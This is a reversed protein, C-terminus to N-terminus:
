FAVLLLGHPSIFLPRRTTPPLDFLSYVATILYLLLFLYCGLVLSRRKLFCRSRLSFPSPPLSPSLPCYFLSPLTFPVVQILLSLLLTVFHSSLSLLKLSTGAVFISFAELGALGVPKQKKLQSSLNQAPSYIRDEENMTGCKVM